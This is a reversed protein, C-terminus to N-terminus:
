LRRRRRKLHLQALSKQISAEVIAVEEDTTKLALADRASQLAKEVAEEDIHEDSLPDGQDEPPMRFGAAGTLVDILLSDNPEGPTIPTGSDGGQKLAAATDLRLGAQQKFAGHCAYCKHELLPKVDRLYDAASVANAAIALLLTSLVQVTAYKM